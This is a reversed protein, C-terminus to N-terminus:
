VFYKVHFFRGSDCMGFPGDKNIVLCVKLGVIM